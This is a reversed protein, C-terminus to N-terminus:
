DVSTFRGDVYSRGAYRNRARDFTAVTVDIENSCECEAPM